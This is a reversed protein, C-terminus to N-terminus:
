KANGGEEKYHEYGEQLVKILDPIMEIVGERTTAACIPRWIPERDIPQYKYQLTYLDYEKLETGKRRARYEDEHNPRHECKIKLRCSTAELEELHQKMRQIEKRLAEIDDVM